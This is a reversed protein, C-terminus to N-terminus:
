RGDEGDPGPRRRGLRMMAALGGMAAAMVVMIEGLTDLARFDVLIVNVVNRGLGGPVANAGFWAALRDDMPEALVGLLLLTTLVGAGIAIALTGLGAKEGAGDLRFGPVRILILALIVVLLTEVMFQTIALDPASYLMFIMAIGLGVMGLATVALLRTTARAVVIAAAATILVVAWEIITGGDGLGALAFQGRFASAIVVLGVVVFSAAVYLHLQGPQMLRTLWTAFRALGALVHDYGRDPGSALFSASAARWAAGSRRWLLYLVAGAAFTALTLLFKWDVGKFLTIELTARTGLVASAAPAILTDAAIQPTMGFVLGLSGLVLPGALMTWPAEHAAEAQESRTGLYPALGAIGAVAFVMANAITATTLTLGIGDTLKAVGIMEKAVWGLGAPLGAMSVSAMAAAAFTLPMARALGSLRTLDRTGAEHDVNGATMFLAGKYLAHVLLFAMAAKVSPEQSPALLFVLTGLASVTTWALVLKLDTELLAFAAGVLMTLAGVLGLSILWVETGGLAPELRALLYVGAKVMTASHLYASVPTPAAMAGPLWSHFPWQASKTFCGLLILVLAPLYLPSEHLWPAALALVSLEWSGGAEALLILGALLALGGTGTILLAQLASRRATAKSADFGVLLYSTLSTLEWFVFLTIVNDSLVVGLMAGMFAFLIAFFRGLQAHGHLYGGAYLVVLTGIGTILLTFLLSLGDLHFSLGISLGPVWATTEVRGPYAAGLDSMAWAFLAAPVLALVFAARDGLRSVLLPALLAAAFPALVVTLM